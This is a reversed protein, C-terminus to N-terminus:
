QAYQMHAVTKATFPLTKVLVWFLQTRHVSPGHVLGDLHGSNRDLRVAGVHSPHLGSVLYSKVDLGLSITAGPCSVPRGEVTILASSM